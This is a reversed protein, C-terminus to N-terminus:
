VNIAAGLTAADVGHSISGTFLSPAFLSTYVAVANFFAPPSSLTSGIGSLSSFGFTQVSAASTM